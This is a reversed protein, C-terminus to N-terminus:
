AWVRWWRDGRPSFWRGTWNPREACHDAQMTGDYVMAWCKMPGVIFHQHRDGPEPMPAVGHRYVAPTAASRGLNLGPPPCPTSGAV